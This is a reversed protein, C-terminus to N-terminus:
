NNNKLLNSVSRYKQIESQFQKSFKKIGQKLANFSKANLKNM